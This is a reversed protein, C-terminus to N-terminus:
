YLINILLIAAYFAPCINEDDFCHMTCDSM